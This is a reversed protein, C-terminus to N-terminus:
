DASAVEDLARGRSEIVRAYFRASDKPTRKQSAFDVHVIGFRKSYGLSWEFNDLLSWAFYGRLDVGAARAARLADLHKRFYGVRLPDALHDGEVTPPDYFAAGNETVYVPPNGYREKVWVLTDVLGQPFVEGGTESYTAQEQRVAAARVPWSPADFRTVRRTYYNVGVFDIPQRIFALDDAPWAPWGEGFIEALEKPYRGLFVPDLYQRNMYAHARATAARDEASESAPYKPELNVVIGIRHRGEARYGRVAAAHARLLQHAAIPAEFLNRHGPALAGHLYGGDTVVWPENLTAWM